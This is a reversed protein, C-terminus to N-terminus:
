EQRFTRIRRGYDVIRSVVEEMPERVILKDNNLLTIVTDPTEEIYKILESNVMFEVNNLRTVKVM